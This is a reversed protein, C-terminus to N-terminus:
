YWVVARFGSHAHQQMGGRVTSRIDPRVLRLLGLPNNICLVLLGKQQCDVSNFRPRQFSMFERMNKLSHSYGM